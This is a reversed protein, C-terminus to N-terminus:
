LAVTEIQEIIQEIFTVIEDFEINRAYDYKRPLILSFIVNIM